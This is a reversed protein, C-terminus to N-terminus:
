DSLPNVESADVQFPLPPEGEKVRQLNVNTIGVIASPRVDTPSTAINGAALAFEFGVFWRGEHIDQQKLLAVALDKMSFSYQTVEAM